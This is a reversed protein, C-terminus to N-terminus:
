FSIKSYAISQTNKRVKSICTLVHLTESRYQIKFNHKSIIRLYFDPKRTTKANMARNLLPNQNTRRAETDLTYPKKKSGKLIKTLRHTVRHGKSHLPRLVSIKSM